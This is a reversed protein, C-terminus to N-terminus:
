VPIWSMQKASRITTFTVARAGDNGKKMMQKIGSRLAKTFNKSWLSRSSTHLGDPLL